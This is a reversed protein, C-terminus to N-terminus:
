HETSTRSFGRYSPPHFIPPCPRSPFRIWSWGMEFRYYVATTSRMLRPQFHKHCSYRVQRDYLLVRIIEGDRWDIDVDEEKIHGVGDEKRFAVARDIEKYFNPFAADCQAESLGYQREDRQPDFM